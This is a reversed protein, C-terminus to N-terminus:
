RSDNWEAKNEINGYLNYKFLINECLPFQAIVKQLDNPYKNQLYSLFLPDSINCGSHAKHKDYRFPEILNNLHIYAMVDNNGWDKLPYCRNTKENIGDKAMNLTFISGLGNSKKLGFVSYDIKYKVRVLKDIKSIPFKGINEEKKIGLYGVKIYSYLAYHPTKYFEINPYRNLAWNIYRNEYDLGDVMYM